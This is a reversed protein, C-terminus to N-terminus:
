RLHDFAEGPVQVAQVLVAEALRQAHGLVLAVVVVQVPAEEERALVVALVQAGLDLAAVPAHVRAEHRLLHHTCYADEIDPHLKVSIARQKLVREVQDACRESLESGASAANNEEEEDDPSYLYRVLCPFVM